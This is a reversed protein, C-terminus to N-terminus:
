TSTNRLEAEEKKREEPSYSEFVYWYLHNKMNIEIHDIKVKSPDTKQLDIKMVKTSNECDLVPPLYATRNTRYPKERLIMNILIDARHEKYKEKIFYYFIDRIIQISPHQFNLLPLCVSLIFCTNRVIYEGCPVGCPALLCSLVSGTVIITLSFVRQSQLNVIFHWHRSFLDIM